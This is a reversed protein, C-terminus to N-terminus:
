NKTESFDGGSGPEAFELKSRDFPLIFQYYTIGEGKVRDGEVEVPIPLEGDAQALILLQGASVAASADLQRKGRRLVNLGLEERSRAAITPIRGFISLLPFAVPLKGDEDLYKKIDYSSMGSHLIRYWHNNWNPMTLSTTDPTAIVAWVSKGSEFQVTGGNSAIGGLRSNSDKGLPGLTKDLDLSEDPAWTAGYYYLVDETTPVSSYADTQASKPYRFILYVNNLLKGSKNVLTGAIRRNKDPSAQAKGEIGSMQGVWCAEFKKLTSRYPMEISKADTVPVEYEQYATYGETSGIHGPHLPFATVYSPSDPSTEKLEVKQAGDRPIYLGFESRVLAPSDPCISVYSVHKIKPPGRLVLRVILVTSATAVIAVIAFAFWSVGSKKKAALLLYSGPGAAAWYIIFFLVALAVLAAGTSELEMGNREAYGMDATGGKDYLMQAPEEDTKLMDLHPAPDDPWDFVKDWVWLWKESEEGIGTLNAEGLDQAVWTVEGRGYAGHVIYPWAGDMEAVYAGTKPQAHAIDFPGKTLTWFTKGSDGSYGPHDRKFVSEHGGKAIRTLADLNATKAIETVNVPLLDAWRDRITQWLVPRGTQCVVFKGGRRIFQKIAQEQLDSLYSPNADLWVIADVADYGIVNEPLSSALSQESITAPMLEEALGRVGAFESTIPKSQAAIFLVLRNGREGGDISQVPQTINLQQLEKGSETCLFVKLAANLDAGRQNQPIGGKNVDTPEPIFYMWFRQDKPAGGGEANGQLPIKESFLVHDKDLDEQVVVLKYTGSASTTARLRVLMPTWVSPRYFGGGFGVSEVDGTAQAGAVAALSLTILGALIFRM